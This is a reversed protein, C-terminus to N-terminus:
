YRPVRAHRPRHKAISVKGQRSNRRDIVFSRETIYKGNALSLPTQDLSLVSKMINLGGFKERLTKAALIEGIRENTLSQM